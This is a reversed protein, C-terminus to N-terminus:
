LKNIEFATNKGNLFTQDSWMFKWNGYLGIPYIDNERLWNIVKNIKIEDGILPVPYAKEILVKKM